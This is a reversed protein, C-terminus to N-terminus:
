KRSPLLSGDVSSIGFATCPVLAFVHTYRFFCDNSHKNFIIKRGGDMYLVPVFGLEEMSRTPIITESAQTHSVYNNTAERDLFIAVSALVIVLLMGLWTGKNRM